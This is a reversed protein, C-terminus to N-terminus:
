NSIIKILKGESNGILCYVSMAGEFIKQTGGKFNYRIHATGTIKVVNAGLYVSDKIHFRFKRSTTNAFMDAMRKLLRAKPLISKEYVIYDYLSSEVLEVSGKLIGDVYNVVSQRAVVKEAHSPIRKSDSWSSHENAEVLNLLLWFNGNGEDLISEDVMSNAFEEKSLESIKNETPLEAIPSDTPTKQTIIITEGVGNQSISQQNQSPNSDLAKEMASEGEPLLSEALPDNSQHKLSNESDSRALGGNSPKRENQTSKSTPEPSEEDTIIQRFDTELEKRVWGESQSIMMGTESITERMNEILVDQEPVSIESANSTEQEVQESTIKLFSQM